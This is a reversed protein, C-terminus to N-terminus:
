PGGRSESIVVGALCTEKRMGMDNSREPGYAEGLQKGGNAGRFTGLRGGEELGGSNKLIEHIILSRELQHLPKARLGTNRM